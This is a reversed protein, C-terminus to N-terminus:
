SGPRFITIKHPGPMTSYGSSRAFNGKGIKVIIEEKVNETKSFALEYKPLVVKTFVPTANVINTFWTLLLLLIQFLHKM